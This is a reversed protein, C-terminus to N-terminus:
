IPLNKTIFLNDTVGGAHCVLRYDELWVSPNTDGDYRPVNTLAWFCSPFTADRVSQNFARQVRKNPSLSHYCDADSDYRRM